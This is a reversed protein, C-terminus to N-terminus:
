RKYYAYILCVHMSGRILELGSYVQFMSLIPDKTFIVFSYTKKGNIEKEDGTWFGESIGFPTVFTMEFPTGFLSILDIWLTYSPNL